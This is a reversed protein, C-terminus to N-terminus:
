PTSSDAKQNRHYVVACPLFLSFFLWGMFFPIGWFHIGAFWTFFNAFLGAPTAVWWFTLRYWWPGASPALARFAAKFQRKWTRAIPGPHYVMSSTDAIYVVHTKM